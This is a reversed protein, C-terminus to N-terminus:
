QDVQDQPIISLFRIRSLDFPIRAYVQHFAGGEPTIVETVQGIIYLGNESVILDQESIDIERQLEFFLGSGGQGSVTVPTDSSFIRASIKSNSDSFLRVKSTSTLVEAVQGIALDSNIVALDGQNLADRQGRDIILSGHPSRPPRILARALTATPPLQDLENQLQNLEDVLLDYHLLKVRAQILQNTLEENAEILQQKSRWNALLINIRRDTDNQTIWIPRGVTHVINPLLDPKALHITSILVLGILTLILKRNKFKNPARYSMKM